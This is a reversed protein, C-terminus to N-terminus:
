KEENIWRLRNDNVLEHCIGSKDSSTVRDFEQYLIPIKRAEQLTQNVREYSSSYDDLSIDIVSGFVDEKIEEYPEDVYEDRSFRKLSQASYYDDRQRMFHAYMAKSGQLKNVDMAPINLKEEYVKLLECIYNLKIENDSIEVPAKEKKPRKPIGGGFTYKFWITKSYQELLKVPSIAGVISFDFKEIYDQLGPDLQIEVKKTIGNKCKSDWKTLLEKNIKDPNDIYKQLSPGIYQSAVIYYNVPISYENKYTYYVLKGFEVWFENPQIPHDYHKCQYIDEGKGDLREAIVDRGLDGAGGLRKVDVYHNQLYSFAWNNIMEEFDVDSMTILRKIPEIPTGFIMSANEPKKPEDLPNRKM